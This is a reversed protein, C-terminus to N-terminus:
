RAVIWRALEAFSPAKGQMLLGVRFIKAAAWVCALVFLATLVISLVVQWAPPPPQLAMRLLMLYPTAPPFLSMAVALPSNPARLVATWVFMPMTALLVVPLMLSQADKLESCASGLALYLSGFLFVALVVFLATLALLHLPIADTYGFRHAVAYAGGGYLTGLLLAVATGGLLKGLMLEFPTVSGLLVESIRSMKEEIVAQLLPPTTTMVVMFVVFMLAMPVLTTRIPDVRRAEVIGAGGPASADGGAAATGTGPASREVLTLNETPVPQGLRGALEPDIGAARLRQSRVLENVTGGLWRPVVEDNPNNSYFRLPKAAAAPDALGEPLVVFAALTGSRVRDSLELLLESEPRGAAEVREPLIKPGQVAGDPGVQVANYATAAQELAAFLTGGPDIVAVPRPTTDVRRAMMAQLAGSGVMLLPMLVLSMLFAKTRVATQFENSAVVGVKRWRM